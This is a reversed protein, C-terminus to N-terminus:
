NNFFMKRQEKHRRYEDFYAAFITLIALTAFVEIVGIMIAALIIALLSVLTIIITKM